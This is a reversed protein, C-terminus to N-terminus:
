RAAVDIPVAGKPRLTIGQTDLPVRERESRIQFRQLLRAVAITAELMAFHSGICARPGGGFPFYAYPHRAAEHEATFRAPNFAEAREWFQPHRHTAFQSVVVYSGAPIVYGGIENEKV